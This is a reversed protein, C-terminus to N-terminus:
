QVATYIINRLDQKVSEIGKSYILLYNFYDFKKYSTGLTYVINHDKYRDILVLGNCINFKEREQMIYAGYNDFYDINSFSFISGKTYLATKRIPDFAAFCNKHFHEQWAENSMLSTSKGTQTDQMGVALYDIVPIDLIELYNSFLKRTIDKIVPKYCKTM